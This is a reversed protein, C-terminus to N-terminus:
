AARRCVQELKLDGGAITQCRSGIKQNPCITKGCLVLRVLGVQM